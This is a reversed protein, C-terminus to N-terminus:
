RGNATGVQIPQCQSKSPPRQALRSPLSLSVSFDPLFVEQRDGVEPEVTVLFYVKLDSELLRRTVKSTDLVHDMLPLLSHSSPTTIFRSQISLTLGPTQGGRTSPRLHFPREKHSQRKRQLDSSSPVLDTGKLQQRALGAVAGPCVAPMCDCKNM